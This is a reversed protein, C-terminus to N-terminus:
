VSCTGSGIAGSRRRLLPCRNPGRGRPRRSPHSARRLRILRRIAGVAPVHARGLRVSPRRDLEDVFFAGRRIFAPGWAADGTIRARGRPLPLRQRLRRSLPGAGASGARCFTGDEVDFLERGAADRYSRLLPRLREIVARLGTLGSWTRVDILVESGPRIPMQSRPICPRSVRIACAPLRWFRAPSAAAVPGRDLM